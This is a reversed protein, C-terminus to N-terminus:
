IGYSFLPSFWLPLHKIHASLFRNLLEPLRELGSLFAVALTHVASAIRIRLHQLFPQAVARHGATHIEANQIDGNRLDDARIRCPPLRRKGRIKHRQQVKSRLERSLPDCEALRMQAVGADRIGDPAKFVHSAEIHLLAVLAHTDEFAKVRRGDTGIDRADQRDIGVVRCHPDIIFKQVKIPEAAQILHMEVTDAVIGLQLGRQAEIGVM